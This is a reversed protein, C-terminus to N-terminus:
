APSAQTLINANLLPQCTNRLTLLYTATKSEAANAEPFQKEGSKTTQTKPHYISATSVDSM